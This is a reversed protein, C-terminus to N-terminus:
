ETPRRQVKRLEELFTSPPHQRIHEAQAATLMRVRKAVETEASKLEAEADECAKAAEVLGFFRKRRDPSLAAVEDESFDRRVAGFNDFIQLPNEATTM